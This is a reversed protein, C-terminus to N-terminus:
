TNEGTAKEIAARANEIPRCENDGMYYQFHEVLTELAELLEQHVRLLCEYHRHGWLHCGPGHTGVRESRDQEWKLAKNLRANEEQLRRLESSIDSYLELPLRESQADFVDVIDALELAEPKNSM